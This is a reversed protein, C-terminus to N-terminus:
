KPKKTTTVTVTGRFTKEKKEAKTLYGRLKMTERKRVKRKLEQESTLERNGGHQRLGPADLAPHSRGLSATLAVKLDARLEVAEPIRATRAALRRKREVEIERVAAFASFIDAIQARVHAVAVYKGRVLLTQSPSLESALVRDQSQLARVLGKPVAHQRRRGM